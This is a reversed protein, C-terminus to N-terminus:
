RAGRRIGAVTGWGRSGTNVIPPAVAAAQGVAAAQRRGDQRAPQPPTGTGAPSMSAPSFHCTMTKGIYANPTCAIYARLKCKTLLSRVFYSKAGERVFLSGIFAIPWYRSSATRRPAALFSLSTARSSPTVRAATLSQRLRLRVGSSSWATLRALSNPMSGPSTSASHPAALARLASVRAAHSRTAATIAACFSQPM